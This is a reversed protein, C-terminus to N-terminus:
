EKGGKQKQIGKILKQFIEKAKPDFDEPCCQPCNLSGYIDRTLEIKHYKCIWIVKKKEM